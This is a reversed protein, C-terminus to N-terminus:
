APVYSYYFCPDHAVQYIRNTQQLSGPVPRTRVLFSHFRPHSSIEVPQEGTLMALPLCFLMIIVSGPVINLHGRKCQECSLFIDCLLYNLADAILTQWTMDFGIPPLRM